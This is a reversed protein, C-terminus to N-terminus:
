LLQGLLYQLNSPCLSPHVQPHRKLNALVPLKTLTVQMHMHVASVTRVRTLPHEIGSARREKEINGEREAKMAELGAHGKRGLSPM